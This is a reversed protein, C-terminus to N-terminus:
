NRENQCVHDGPMQVSAFHQRTPLPRRLCCAVAARENVHNGVLCTEKSNPTVRELQKPGNGYERLQRAHFVNEHHSM